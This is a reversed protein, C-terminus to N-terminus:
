ICDKMVEHLCTSMPNKGIEGTLAAEGEPLFRAHGFDAVRVHLCDDLLINSPKLDRHIVMPKQEHLYQAAQAVELGKELREKLPPLPISRERRREKHGHLWETLTKGSLLDTVVWGNEPPLLCAGLLRLM